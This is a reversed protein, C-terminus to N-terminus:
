GIKAADLTHVSHRLHHELSFIEAVEEATLLEVVDPDSEISSRFDITNAQRSRLIAPRELTRVARTVGLPSTFGVCVAISAPRFSDTPAGPSERSRM